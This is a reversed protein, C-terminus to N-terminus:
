MCLATPATHRYTCTCASPLTPLPYTLAPIQLSCLQAPLITLAPENLFCLHATPTKTCPWASLHPPCHCQSDLAVSLSPSCHSHSHLDMCLASTPFRLTLTPVQHFCIHGAPRPTSYMCLASTPLPWTFVPIHLPSLYVTPKKTCTWTSLLHTTTM